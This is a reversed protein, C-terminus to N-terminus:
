VRLKFKKIERSREQSLPHKHEVFTKTTNTLYLVGIFLRSANKALKHTLKTNNMVLACQSVYKM